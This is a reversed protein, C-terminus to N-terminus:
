FVEFINPNIGALVLRGKREAVKQNLKILVGLAASSLHEVNEFNLLLKICETAEVAGVLEGEIEQIAFEELIKRDSFRAVCVDNTDTFTVHKGEAM